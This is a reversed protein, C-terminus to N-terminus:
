DNVVPVIILSFPCTFAEIGIYDTTIVLFSATSNLFNFILQHCPPDSCLHMGRLM